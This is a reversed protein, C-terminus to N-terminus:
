EGPKVLRQQVSSSELVQAESRIAESRRFVECFLKQHERHELL